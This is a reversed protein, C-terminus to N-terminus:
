RVFVVVRDKLRIELLSGDAARLISNPNQPKTNKVEVRAKAVVKGKQIISAQNGELELQYKGKELQIGAVTTEDTLKFVHTAGLATTSFVVATLAVVFAVALLKRM